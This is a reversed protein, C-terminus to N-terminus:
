HFLQLAITALLLTAATVVGVYNFRITEIAGSNTADTSRKFQELALRVLIGAQGSHAKPSDSARIQADPTATIPLNKIDAQIVGRGGYRSPAPAVWCSYSGTQTGIVLLYKSDVLDIASYPVTITRLPNVIIVQEADIVLKPRVFLLWALTAATASVGLSIGFELLSDQLAAGIPLLVALVFVVAALLLNSVPRFVQREFM